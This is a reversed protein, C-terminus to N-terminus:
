EYGNKNQPRDTRIYMEFQWSAMEVPSLRTIWSNLFKWCIMYALLENDRECSGAVPGQGSSCSDLEYRGIRNRHSSYFASSAKQTTHFCIVPTIGHYSVYQTHPPNIQKLHFIVTFYFYPLNFIRSTLVSFHTNYLNFIQFLIIRLFLSLQEGCSYSITVQIPSKYSPTQIPHNSKNCKM